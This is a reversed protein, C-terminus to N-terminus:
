EGRLIEAPRIRGLLRLPFAGALAVGVMLAVVLPLVEPRADISVDFARRGIWRSLEIGLAYGVIAGALGLAGAEALFITVIRSMSGGIAKMMGVDRRREMALAAMSALVCLATLVLILLVTALILGRLRGLLQGEAEALQRVPRVDLDPLASAVTRMYAGIEEPTGAVSVQVVGVRNALGALKQAVALNVFIQSDEDGGSNIVGAVSLSKVSGSYNLAIASGAELALSKAVSSGVLCEDLDDRSTIAHGSIKWWPAMKPSEDLWTGAVIVQASGVASKTRSAATASKPAVSENNKAHAEAVIFLYPAVTAAAGPAAAAVRSAIAEDELPASMVDAASDRGHTGGANVATATNARPLVLVNAGLTRFEASLKKSADMQLNLLATTVAAGSIVAMLAIVLRGRSARFLQKVIRWFM